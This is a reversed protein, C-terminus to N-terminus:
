CKESELLIRYNVLTQCIMKTVFPDDIFKNLCVNKLYFAGRIKRAITKISHNRNPTKQESIINFLYKPASTFGAFLLLSSTILTLKVIQHYFFNIFILLTSIKKGYM